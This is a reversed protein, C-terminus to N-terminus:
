RWHLLALQRQLQVLALLHEGQRQRKKTRPSAHRAQDRVTQDTHGSNTIAVRESSTALITGDNNLEIINLSNEHARVKLGTDKPLNGLDVIQVYGLCKQDNMQAPCCLITRVENPNVALVGSTSLLRGKPNM